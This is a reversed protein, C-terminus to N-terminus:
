YGYIISRHLSLFQVAVDSCSFLADPQVSPETSLHAELRSSLRLKMGLVKHLFPLMFTWVSNQPKWMFEICMHGGRVCLSIILLYICLVHQKLFSQPVIVQFKDKNQFSSCAFFQLPLHYLYVPFGQITCLHPYYSLTFPSPFLFLLPPLFLFPFLTIKLKNGGTFRQFYM